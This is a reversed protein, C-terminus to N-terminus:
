RFLLLQTSGFKLLFFRLMKSAHAKVEVTYSPWSEPADGLTKVLSHLLKTDEDTYPPPLFKSKLKKVKSNWDLWKSPIIDIQKQSGRRGRCIFQVITLPYKEEEENDSSDSM